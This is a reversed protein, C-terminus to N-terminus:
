ECALGDKDRDLDQNANYDPTGRRLPALGAARVADCNAFVRGTSPATSTTPAVTATPTSPTALTSRPLRQSPCSGLVRAMADHEAATVWVHYRRKVAIQRAVYACRFATSPPLWTAADGDGKARNAHASVALLELPDNAFTEREAAPWQQAGKQWADALAVVHDIDVESAGRIYRIRARTYPDVLLGSAVDCTSGPEYSRQTLDRTLIRDRMDCGAVSAWGDGFQERTYGTLPARGKIALTALAAMATGTGAPQTRHRPPAAPRRHRTHATAGRRRHAATRHSPVSTTARTDASPGATGCGALVTLALAAGVFARHIGAPRTLM